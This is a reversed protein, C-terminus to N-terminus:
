NIKCSKKIKDMASSVIIIRLLHDIILISKTLINIARFLNHAQILIWIQMHKDRM